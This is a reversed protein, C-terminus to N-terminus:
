WSFPFTASGYKNAYRTMQNKNQEHFSSLAICLGRLGVEADPCTLFLKDEVGVVGLPSFEAVVVKEM